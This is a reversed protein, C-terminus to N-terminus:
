ATLDLRGISRPLAAFLPKVDERRSVPQEARPSDNQGQRNENGPRREQGLSEQFSPGSQNQRSDSGLDNRAVTLDVSNLSLNQGSLSEKLYSMSDELIKKARDDSAQIKLGVQNGNAIVRITLEGLNDPKLRVRFEGGGQATLRHIGTGIGILGDTSIRKQAMAGPVVQASMEAGSGFNLNPAKVESGALHQSASAAHAAINQTLDLNLPQHHAQSHGETQSSSQAQSHGQTQDLSLSSNWEDEFDLEHRAKVDGAKGFGESTETVLTAGPSQVGYASRVTTSVPQATPMGSMGPIVPLMAQGSYQHLVQYQPQLQLPQQLPQNKAQGHTQVQVPVETQVSTETQPFSQAQTLFQLQNPYEYNHQQAEKLRAKETSQIPSQAQLHLEPFIEQGPIFSPHLGVQGQGQVQTRTQLPTRQQVGPQFQFQPELQSGLQSQPLYQPAIENQALVQSSGLDQAQTQSSLRSFDLPMGTVKLNGPIILGRKLSGEGAQAPDETQTRAPQDLGTSIIAANQAATSQDPNSIVVPSFQPIFQHVMMSAQNMEMEFESDRKSNLDTIALQKTNAKAGTSTSANLNLNTSASANTNITDM